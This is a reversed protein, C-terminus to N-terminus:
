LNQKGYSIQIEDSAYGEETGTCVACFCGDDLRLDRFSVDKRELVDERKMIQELGLGTYKSYAEKRTWLKYFSSGWGEAAAYATEDETFCRAAIRDAKVDRHYQIDLGVNRDAEIMAFTDKSHSVSIFVRNDGSVQGPHCVFPKGRENRTIVADESSLCQRILADTLEKGKLAPFAKKYDKIVYLKM